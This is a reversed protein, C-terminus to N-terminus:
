PLYHQKFVLYPFGYNKDSPKIYKRKILGFHFEKNVLCVIRSLKIRTETYM